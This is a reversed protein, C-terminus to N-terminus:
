PLYEDCIKQKTKVRIGHHYYNSREKERKKQLRSHHVFDSTSTNAMIHGILLFDLSSRSMSSCQDRIASIHETSFAMSCPNGDHLACGCTQSIFKAVKEDEAIDIDRSKLGVEM